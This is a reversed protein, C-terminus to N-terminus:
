VNVKLVKSSRAEAAEIACDEEAAIDLCPYQPASHYGKSKTKHKSPIKATFYAIGGILVSIIVLTLCIIAFTASINLGTLPKGVNSTGSNPIYEYNIGNSSRICHRHESDTVLYDGCDAVCKGITCDCYQACGVCVDSFSKPCNQKCEKDCIETENVSKGLTKTACTGYFILSWHNLKGAGRSLDKVQLTWRGAPDEDWHFVTLFAWDKFGDENSTDLLRKRLIDSRTGSPSTLFIELQGRQKKKEINVIVHVHELKTVCTNTKGACGDTTVTSVVSGGNKLTKNVQIVDTKCIHQPLATKWSSDQAASVLRAASLAGFGFKINVDHGAGNRRWDIDDPSVMVSTRVVM